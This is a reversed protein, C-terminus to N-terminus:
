LAFRKLITDKGLRIFLYCTANRFQFSFILCFYSSIQERAQHCEHIHKDERELNLNDDRM